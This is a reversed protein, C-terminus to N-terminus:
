QASLLLKYSKDRQDYMIQPFDGTGQFIFNDSHDSKWCRSVPIEIKLTLEIVGKLCLHNNEELCSNILSPHQEIKAWVADDDPDAQLQNQLKNRMSRFINRDNACLNKLLQLPDYKREEVITKLCRKIKQRKEDESMEEQLLVSIPHQRNVFLTENKRFKEMLAITFRDYADAEQNFTIYHLTVPISVPISIGGVLQKANETAITGAWHTQSTTSRQAPSAFRKEFWEIYPQVQHNLAEDSRIAPTQALDLLALREIQQKLVRSASSICQSDGPHYAYFPFIIKVINEPLCNRLRYYADFGKEQYPSIYNAGGLSISQMKQLLCELLDSYSFNPHALNFEQVLTKALPYGEIRMQIATISVPDKILPLLQELLDLYETTNKWLTIKTRNPTVFEHDSKNTVLYSTLTEACFRTNHLVILKDEPEFPLQTIPDTKENPSPPNGTAPAVASMRTGPTSTTLTKKVAGDTKATTDDPPLDKKEIPHTSSCWKRYAAVLLALAALITLAITTKSSFQPFTPRLSAIRFSLSTRSINM